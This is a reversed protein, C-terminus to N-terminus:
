SLIKNTHDFSISITIEKTSPKPNWVWFRRKKTGFFNVGWPIPGSFKNNRARTKSPFIGAAVALEELETADSFIIDDTNDIVGNIDGFIAAVDHETVGVSDANVIFNKIM